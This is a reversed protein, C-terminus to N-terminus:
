WATSRSAPSTRVGSCMSSNQLTVTTPLLIPPNTAVQNGPKLSTSVLWYFPLVALVAV